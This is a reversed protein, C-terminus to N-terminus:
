GNCRLAYLKEEKEILNQTYTSMRQMAYVFCPYVKPDRTKTYYVRIYDAACWTELANNYAVVAVELASQKARALRAKNRMAATQPREGGLIRYAKKFDCQEFHKVVDFVDVNVGCVFCHAVKDRYISMNLDHGNHEFCKCRGRKIDVGYRKLVETISTTERIQEITM